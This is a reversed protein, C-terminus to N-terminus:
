AIFNANCSFTADIRAISEIVSVPVRTKDSVDEASLGTLTDVHDGRLVYNICFTDNINNHYVVMRLNANPVDVHLVAEAIAVPADHEASMTVKITYINAYM